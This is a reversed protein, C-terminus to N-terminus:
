YRSFFFIATFPLSHHVYHVTYCVFVLVLMIFGGVKMSVSSFLCITFIVQFRVAVWLEIALQKGTCGAYVICVTNCASGHPHGHQLM